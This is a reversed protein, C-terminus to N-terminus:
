RTTVQTVSVYARAPGAEAWGSDYAVSVNPIRIYDHLVPVIDTDWAQGVHAAAAAHDLTVDRSELM